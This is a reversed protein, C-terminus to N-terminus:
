GRYAGAIRALANGNSNENPGSFQGAAIARTIAAKVIEVQSDHLTFTMQQFPEKDGSALDPPEIGDVSAKMLATFLLGDFLDPTQGRIEALILELDDTFEGALRQSNAAVSAARQKEIPWDVFRVRFEHGEPTRIVDGEIPLEGWRKRMQDLRQHGAVLNGTRQNFVIGSLDGFEGLSVALGAAAADTITRPNRPDAALEVTSRAPTAAVKPTARMKRVGAKPGGKAAARKKEAEAKIAEEFVGPNLPKATM